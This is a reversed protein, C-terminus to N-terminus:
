QNGGQMYQQFETSQLVANIIAADNAQWRKSHHFDAIYIVYFRLNAFEDPTRLQRIDRDTIVVALLHDEIDRGNEKGDITGTKGYIHYHGLNNRIQNYVNAATGGGTFVESLGRIFQANRMALYNNANGDISLPAFPPAPSGADITLRYNRNFSIMRGYMEAMKLPSVLWVSHKGIATMKVGETTPDKGRESSNFFSAQPFAYYGVRRGTDLMPHFAQQTEIDVSVRESPLGFNVELGTPLLSQRSGAHESDMPSAFSCYRGNRIILPFVSDNYFERNHPTNPNTTWEARRPQFMASANDLEQRTFSGIHAMMANYLNSSQRMFFQVDVNSTGSGEDGILPRFRPKKVRGGAWKSFVYRNGDREVLENNIRALQLDNWGWDPYQSTVASWVLPKQSSGPGNDLWLIAKNGFFREAEHGRNLMGERKLSDEVQQIRRADNPNLTYHRPKHDVLARVHGNGDAVAVAVAGIANSNDLARYINNTLTTSLTLHVPDTIIQRRKEKDTEKSLKRNMYGRLQVALPNAWYLRSQLPYIFEARSNIIVNQALYNGSGYRTLDPANAGHLTEGRTLNYAEGSNLRRPAFRGMVSLNSTSPRVILSHERTWADPLTYIHTGRLTHRAPLSDNVPAYAVVSGHWTNDLRTPLHQQFYRITVDFTYRVHEIDTNTTDNYRRKVVYIINNIDNQELQKELYQDFTAQAFHGYQNDSRFVECIPSSSLTDGPTYHMAGCFQRVIDAHSGLRTIDRQNSNSALTDQYQRFLREVSNRNEDAILHYTEAACEAVDYTSDTYRGGKHNFTLIIVGALLIFVSEVIGWNKIFGLVTNSGDPKTRTGNLINNCEENKNNRHHAELGQNFRESMATLVLTLFGIFCMLTNVKSIISIMPFDQGVFFFRRTVAMWVLLSQVTLLLPIQVILSRAWRRDAPFTLSFLTLLAFMLVLVVPLAASQEAILFRSVSLDTLQTMWSVGVQSHPQLKFYGAGHEGVLAPIERGREEYEELVWDNLSAEFFKQTDWKSSTNGLVKSPDDALVLVRKATHDGALGPMLKVAFGSLLALAAVIILSSRRYDKTMGGITWATLTGVGAMIVIALLIALWNNTYITSFVPRLVCLLTIAIAALILVGLFRIGRKKGDKKNLEHPNKGYLDILRLSVVLVSFALFIIGYGGDGVIIAVFAILNNALAHWFYAYSNNGTDSARSAMTRHIFQDFMFYYLVPIGVHFIPHSAIWSFLAVIVWGAYFATLQRLKKKDSIPILQHWLKRFDTEGSTEERRHFVPDNSIVSAEHSWSDIEIQIEYPSAAAKKGQKRIIHFRIKIVFLVIMTLMICSPLSLIGSMIESATRWSNFQGLDIGTVPPFVSVRWILMLRISLLVILIIYVMPELYTHRQPTDGGGDDFNYYKDNISLLLLSMLVVVAVWVMMRKAPMPPKIGQPRQLTPDKFNDLSIIWHTGSATAIRPIPEGAHATATTVGDSDMFTVNLPTRTSGRQFYLYIPRMQYINDPHDFMDYLLINEAHQSNVDGNEDILTSAVMFAFGDSADGDLSETSLYRYHPLAFRVRLLGTTDADLRFEPIERNLGISLRRGDLPITTRATRGIPTVTNGSRLATLGSGNEYSVIFPFDKSEAPKKDNDTPVRSRVLSVKSLDIGGITGVSPFIAALSYNKCIINTFASTDTHIASDAATSSLTYIAQWKKPKYWKDLVKHYEIHITAVSQNDAGILELNENPNFVHLNNQGELLEYYNVTKKGTIRRVLRKFGKSKANPFRYVPIGAGDLVLTATSDATNIDELAISGAISRNDFLADRSDAALLMRSAGTELGELALAHHDNNSYVNTSSPYFYRGMSLLAVIGVVLLCIRSVNRQKKTSCRGNKSHSSWYIVIMALIAVVSLLVFGISMNRALYIISAICALALLAIAIIKTISRKQPTGNMTEM